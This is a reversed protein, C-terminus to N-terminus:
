YIATKHNRKKLFYKKQDGCRSASVESVGDGLSITEESLNSDAEVPCLISFFHRERSKGQSTKSVLGLVEGEVLKLNGKGEEM